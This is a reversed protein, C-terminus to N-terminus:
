PLCSTCWGVIAGEPRPVEGQLLPDRTDEMWGELRNKLDGFIKRCSRNGALNRREGPDFYLDFLMERERPRDFYGNELFLDKSPSDDCNAPLGRKYSGFDRILKYRSTRVCRLPEYM